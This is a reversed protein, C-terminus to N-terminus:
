GHWNRQRYMAAAGRREEERRRRDTAERDLPRQALAKAETDAGRLTAVALDHALRQSARPRNRDAM